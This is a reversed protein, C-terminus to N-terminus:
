DIQAVVGVVDQPRVAPSTSDQWAVYDGKATINYLGATNGLSYLQDRATDYLYGGVDAAAVGSSEAWAVFRNTVAPSAFAGEPESDVTVM